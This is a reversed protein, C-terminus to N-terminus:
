QPTIPDEGDLRLDPAPLGMEEVAILAEQQLTSAVLPDEGEMLTELVIGLAWRPLATVEFNGGVERILDELDANARVRAIAGDGMYNTAADLVRALVHTWRALTQPDSEEEGLIDLGVPLRELKEIYWPILEKTIIRGHQPAILEVEPLAKIAEIALRIAKNSPMYLQHFARMGRWDTDDAYIGTANIDTLGGFLDGSFLVRTEPDYMMVAGRFHCFPSPVPLIVQGTPLQFGSGRKDTGFYRERPLGLHHILRWTAESCIISARPAYKATILGIASCVDPDQHNVWMGTLREMGGIVARVKTMVVALDSRSGPDILLNFQSRAGGEEMGPFIRLYPNAHFISRPDRKGVWHTNPAIEVPRLIEDSM